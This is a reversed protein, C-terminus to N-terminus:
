NVSVEYGLKELFPALTKRYNTMFSREWSCLTDGDQFPLIESPAKGQNSAEEQVAELFEQLQTEYAKSFALGAAARDTEAQRRYETILEASPTIPYFINDVTIDKPKTGTTISIIRGPGFNEKQMFSALYLKM